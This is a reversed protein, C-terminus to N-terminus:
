FLKSYISLYATKLYAYVCEEDNEKGNEVIGRVVAETSVVQHQGLDSGLTRM